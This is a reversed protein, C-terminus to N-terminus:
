RKLKLEFLSVQVSQHSFYFKKPQTLSFNSNEHIGVLFDQVDEARIKLNRLDSQSIVVSGAFTKVFALESIKEYINKDQTEGANHSSLQLRTLLEDFLSATSQVFKWIEVRGTRVTSM